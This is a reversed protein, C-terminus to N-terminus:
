GHPEEIMAHNQFAASLLAPLLIYLHRGDSKAEWEKPTSNLCAVPKAQAAM